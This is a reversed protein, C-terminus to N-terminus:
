DLLIEEYFIQEAMKETFIQQEHEFLLDLFMSYYCAPLRNPNMRYHRINVVQSFIFGQIFERYRMTLNYIQDDIPRPHM